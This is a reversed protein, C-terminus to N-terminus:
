AAARTAKLREFAAQVRDWNKLGPVVEGTAWRFWLSRHVQADTVVSLPDLGAAQCAEQFETVRPHPTRAEMMRRMLDCKQTAQLPM